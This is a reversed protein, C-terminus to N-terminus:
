FITKFVKWVQDLLQFKTGFAIKPNKHMPKFNIINFFLPEMKCM